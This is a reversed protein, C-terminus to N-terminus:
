VAIDLLSKMTESEEQDGEDGQDALGALDEMSPIGGDEGGPPSEDPGGPGDPGGAPQAGPAGPAGPQGSSAAQEQMAAATVLQIYGPDLLVDGHELPKMDLEARLDNVTHTTKVRSENLKALEEQTQAELGVFEFEFDPTIKSIINDTIGRAIFRLLPKLGKDKSETLKQKNAAEFMSKQGGSNAYKFNVEVPDMLFVSCILKIQFDMWEAHQMERHSMQLNHWQLDGEANLVPTRWFNEVGSIMQHWDRRFAKLQTQNMAGKINLIGKVLAGNSFLRANSEFGYLVQTITKASMEVESEGYGQRWLASSPNRVCFAMSDYDWENIPINNYVQVTRIADPDTELFGKHTDALRITTSDVAYWAAPEGKSNQVIEYCAQDYRLSDNSVKRLFTEFSDRHQGVVDVGSRLVFDNAKQIYKRDVPSPRETPDKMRIRFGIQFPDHQPKAFSAVQGIRTQIIARIIPVRQMVADITGYSINTPKDKFGMQNIVLFPDWFLAEPEDAPPETPISPSDNPAALAPSAQNLRDLAKTLVDRGIGAIRDRLSM